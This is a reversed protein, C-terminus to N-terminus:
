TKFKILDSNIMWDGLGMERGCKEKGQIIDYGLQHGCWFHTMGVKKCVWM